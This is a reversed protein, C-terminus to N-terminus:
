DKAKVIKDSPLDRCHPCLWDGKPEAKLGVCTWHFWQYPCLDNDCAVMDGYSVQQCVCYIEDGEADQEPEDAEEDSAAASTAHGARRRAARAAAAAASASAAASAIPTSSAIDSGGDNQPLSSPAPSVSGRSSSPTPSTLNRRKDGKKTGAVSASSIGSAGSTRIRKRSASAAAAAAAAHHPAVKKITPGKKTSSNAPRAPPQASASGARSSSPAPTGAKPTGGSPGLSSQRLASSQTPTTGSLSTNLRRRKNADVSSERQSRAASANLHPQNLLPNPASVPSGRASPNSAVMRAMAANAINPAGGAQASALASSKHPTVTGTTNSGSTAGPQLLSPLTSDPAIEGKSELKRMSLDFRKIQRDLVIMAKESLALKEAQLIEVRDYSALIGKTLSDEKPNKVHGGNQRVFNQISKDRSAILTRLEDIQQDKASVEELLHTIEAPLNAVDNCFQELVTAPDESANAM